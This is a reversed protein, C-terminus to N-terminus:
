VSLRKSSQVVREEWTSVGSLSRQLPCKAAHSIVMEPETSAQPRLDNLETTKLSAAGRKPSDNRATITPQDIYPAQGFQVNLQQSSTRSRNEQPGPTREDQIVQGNVINLPFSPGSGHSWQGPIFAKANPNMVDSGARPQQASETAVLPWPTQQDPVVSRKSQQGPVLYNAVPNWGHLGPPAIPAWQRQEYPIPVHGHEPYYVEQPPANPVMRQHGHGNLDDWVPPRDLRLKMRGQDMRRSQAPYPQAFRPWPAPGLPQQAGNKESPQAAQTQHSAIAKVHCYADSRVICPDQQQPALSTQCSYEVTQTSRTVAAPANPSCRVEM